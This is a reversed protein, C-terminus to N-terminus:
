YFTFYKSFFLGEWLMRISKVQAHQSSKESKGSKQPSSETKEIPFWMKDKTLNHILQDLAKDRVSQMASAALHANLGKITRM